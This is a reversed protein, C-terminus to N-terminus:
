HIFAPSCVGYSNANPPKNGAFNGVRILENETRLYRTFPTNSDLDILDVSRGILNSIRGWEIFFLHRYAPFPWIWTPLPM